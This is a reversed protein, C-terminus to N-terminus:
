GDSPGKCIRMLYDMQYDPIKNWWDVYATKSDVEYEIDDYILTLTIEKEVVGVRFRTIILMNGFYFPDVPLKGLKADRLILQYIPEVKDDKFSNGDKPAYIIKIHPLTM